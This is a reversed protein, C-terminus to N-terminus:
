KSVSHTDADGYRCPAKRDDDYANEGESTKSIDGTVNELSISGHIRVLIGNRHVLKSCLERIHVSSYFFSVLRTGYAGSIVLM